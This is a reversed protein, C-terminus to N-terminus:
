RWRARRRRRADENSAPTPSTRTRRGRSRKSSPRAGTTEISAALRAQASRALRPAVESSATGPASWLPRRHHSKCRLRRVRVTKGPQTVELLRELPGPDGRHFPRKHSVPSYLVWQLARQERPRGRLKVTLRGRTSATERAIIAKHSVFERCNNLAIAFPEDRIAGFHGTRISLTACLRRRSLAEGCRDGQDEFVTASICQAAEWPANSALRHRNLSVCHGAAADASDRSSDSARPASESEKTCDWSRDRQPLEWACQPRSHTPQSSRGREKPAPSQRSLPEPPRRVIAPAPRSSRYHRRPRQFATHARPELRVGARPREAEGNSCSSSGRWYLERM